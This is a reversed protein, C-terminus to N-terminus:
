KRFQYVEKTACERCILREESYTNQGEPLYVAFSHKCDTCEFQIYRVRVHYKKELNESLTEIM